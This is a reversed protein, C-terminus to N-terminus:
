ADTGDPKTDWLSQLDFRLFPRAYAYGDKDFIFMPAYGVSVYMHKTNWDVVAVHVDGTQAVAPINQVIWEATLDGHQGALAEYTVPHDTWPQIHKDLYIVDPLAPTGTHQENNTDDITVVDDPSYALVATPVRSAPSVPAAFGLFIPWTRKFSKAMAVAEAPTTAREIMARIAFVDSIGDYTGPRVGQVRPAHLGVSRLLQTRPNESVGDGHQENIKEAQALSPSVSTIVGVAGPFTLSAFPQAGAPHRVVLIQNPAFPGPGFDLARLQITDGHGARNASGWSTVISCAMRVLEPFLNQARIVYRTREIDCSDDGQCYGDALGDLEQVLTETKFYPFQNEWIWNLVTLLAEPIDDGKANQLVKRMDDPLFENDVAKNIEVLKYFFPLEDFILKQIEKKMIQGQAFGM